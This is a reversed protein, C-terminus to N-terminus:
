DEWLQRLFNINEMSYIRDLEKMLHFQYSKTDDEIKVKNRFKVNDKNLIIKKM